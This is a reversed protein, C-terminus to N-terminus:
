LFKRHNRWIWFLYFVCFTCFSLFGLKGFSFHSSTYVRISYFLSWVPIIRLVCHRLEKLLITTNNCLCRIHFPSKKWFVQKWSRLLMAAAIFKWFFKDGYLLFWEDFCTTDIIHVSRFSLKAAAAKVPKHPTEKSASYFRKTYSDGKCKWLPSSWILTQILSMPIWTKEHIM